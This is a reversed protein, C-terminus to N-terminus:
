RWASNGAEVRWVFSSSKFNMLKAIFETNCSVDPPSTTHFDNRHELLTAGDIRCQAATPRSYINFFDALPCFTEAIEDWVACQSVLGMNVRATWEIISDTITIGIRTVDGTSQHSVVWTTRKNEIAVARGKRQPTAPPATFDYFSTTITFNSYNKLSENRTIALAAVERRGLEDPTRRFLSFRNQDWGILQFQTKSKENWNSTSNYMKLHKASREPTTLM